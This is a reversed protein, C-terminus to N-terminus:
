DASDCSDRWRRFVDRGLRKQRRLEDLARSITRCDVGFHKAAKAKMGVTSGNQRIHSLFYDLLENVSFKKASMSYYLM